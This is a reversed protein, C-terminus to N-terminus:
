KILKLYRVILLLFIGVSLHNVKTDQNLKATALYQQGITKMRLGLEKPGSNSVQPLLIV